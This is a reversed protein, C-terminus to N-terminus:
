RFRRKSSSRWHSRAQTLRSRAQTLRSSSLAAYGMPQLIHKVWADTRIVHLMMGLKLRM